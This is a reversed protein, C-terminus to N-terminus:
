NETEKPKDYHETVHRCMGIFGNVFYRAVIEGITVLGVGFICGKAVEWIIQSISM